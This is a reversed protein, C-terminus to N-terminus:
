CELEDFCNKLLQMAKKMLILGASPIVMDSPNWGNRYLCYWVLRFETALLLVDVPGREGLKM